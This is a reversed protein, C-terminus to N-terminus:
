YTASIHDAYALQYLDSDEAAAHEASQAASDVQQALMLADLAAHGVHLIIIGGDIAHYLLGIRQADELDLAPRLHRHQRADLGFAEVVQHDLDRDDAGPRDLTVHDM